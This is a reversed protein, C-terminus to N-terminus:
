KNKNVDLAVEDLVREKYVDEFIRKAKENLPLNREDQKALEKATLYIRVIGEDLDLLTSGRYATAYHKNEELHLGGSLKVGLFESQTLRIGYKNLLFMTADSTTMNPHNPNKQYMQGRKKMWAESDVYFPTKPDIGLLGVDGFLSLFMLSTYADKSIERMDAIGQAIKYIRLREDIFGGEIANGYKEDTSAPADILVKVYDELFSTANQREEAFIKMMTIGEKIVEKPVENRQM